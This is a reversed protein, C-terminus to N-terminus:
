AAIRGGTAIAKSELVMLSQHRKWIKFLADNKTKEKAGTFQRCIEKVVDGSLRKVGEYIVPFKKDDGLADSLQAVYRDAEVAAKLTTVLRDVSTKGTKADYRRLELADFRRSVSDLRDLCKRLDSV